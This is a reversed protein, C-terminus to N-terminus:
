LFFSDNWNEHLADPFMNRYINNNVILYLINDNIRREKDFFYRRRQCQFFNSNFVHRFDRIKVNKFITIQNNYSFILM